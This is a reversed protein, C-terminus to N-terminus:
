LMFSRPSPSSKGFAALAGHFGSETCDAPLGAVGDEANGLFEESRVGV